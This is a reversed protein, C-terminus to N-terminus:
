VVSPLAGNPAASRLDILIYLFDSKACMATEMLLGDDGVVLHCLKCHRRQREDTTRSMDEHQAKVLCQKRARM